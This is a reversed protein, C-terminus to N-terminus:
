PRSPCGAVNEDPMPLPADDDLTVSFPGGRNQGCVDSMVIANAGTPGVLLIDLDDPYTHTIGSLTVTVKTASTGEGTVDITSPYTTAKSADPISIEAPNAYTAAVAALPLAALAVAPAVWRLRRM